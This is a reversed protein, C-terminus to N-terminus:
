TSPALCYDVCSKDSQRDWSSTRRVVFGLTVLLRKGSQCTLSHGTASPTIIVLNHLPTARIFLLYGRGATSKWPGPLQGTRIGMDMHAPCPGKDNTDANVICLVSRQRPSLLMDANFPWASNFGTSHLAMSQVLFCSTQALIPCYSHLIIVCPQDPISGLQASGVQRLQCILQAELGSRGLLLCPM